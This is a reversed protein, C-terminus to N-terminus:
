TGNTNRLTSLLARNCPRTHLSPPSTPSAAAQGARGMHQGCSRSGMRRGSPSPFYLSFPAPFLLLLLM